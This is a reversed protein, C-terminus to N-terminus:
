LAEEFIPKQRPISECQVYYPSLPAHAPVQPGIPYIKCTYCMGGTCYLAVHNLSLSSNINEMGYVISIALLHM